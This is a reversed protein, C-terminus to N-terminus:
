YAYYYEEELHEMPAGIKEWGSDIKLLTQFQEWHLRDRFTMKETVIGSPVDSAWIELDKFDFGKGRFWGHLAHLKEFTNHTADCGCNHKRVHVFGLSKLERRTGGDRVEMRNARTPAKPPHASLNVPAIEKATKGGFEYSKVKGDAYVDMRGAPNPVFPPVFSLLDSEYTGDSFSSLVRGAVKDDAGYLELYSRVIPPPDCMLFQRGHREAAKIIDLLGAVASSDIQEVQHMHVIRHGDFEALKLQKVYNQILPLTSNDVRAPPTTVIARFDAPIRIESM